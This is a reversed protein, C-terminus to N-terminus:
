LPPAQEAWHTAQEYADGIGLLTAEAFPKGILQIATPLGNSTFGAPMSLAPLGLYSVPRTMHALKGVVAAMGEGAAVDTEAGTPAPTGLMPTVLADCQAFPGELMSKLLVGRLSKAQLYATAPIVLGQLLRARVQPGYDEPRERLWSLHLMAAEPTFTVNALEAIQDHDPLDVDSLVAGLGELVRIAEDVRAAVEADIGDFYFSTPVGIRVGDLRQGGARDLGAEYDPVPAAVMGTDRPDYGALVDMLRAVDRVTRALPGVCDLSESLPMIGYRSIRGQTPKLGVVGCMAAPLRVSGGTDSGLAGFVLRAAVAAGSGSSSGGTIHEPNWPNRCRGLHANHGSPGMAFESMHLRAVDLAGARDLRDLAASTHDPVFGRRITTGCDSARGARYFMDKHGLPVGHLPGMERGAAVAADAARAASLAQDRDVAVVCNLDATRAIRDLCAEALAESKLTGSRIADAADRLSLKWPEASTM